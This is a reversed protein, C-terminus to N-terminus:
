NIIDQVSGQSKTLQDQQQQQNFQAIQPGFANATYSQASQYPDLMDPHPQGVYQQQFYSNIEDSTPARGMLNQFTQTFANQQRNILSRSGELNYFNIGAAEDFQAPLYNATEPTWGPVTVM